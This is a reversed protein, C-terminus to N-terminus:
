GIAIGFSSGAGVSIPTGATNTATNIPTVTGFTDTGSVVYAAAGNPTIAIGFPQNPIPIAPKAINTVLNVPIVTNGDIGSDNTVYATSGNPTIAIRNLGVTAGLPIPTGATDTVLNIPIVASDGEGVVYATAGNPAIAIADASAGVPIPTGATNTATNIPTVSNDGEIVVYATAGNPAMAIDTPTTGVPIPTGATNTATNIPTVTNDGGETVYATTGDPTIAIGAIGEPHTGVTIPTAATNTVLNIPTVSPGIFDTVYASEGNPTIAMAFPNLVGTIPTGATNTATDIPTVTDAGENTVYATIPRLTISSTSPAFTVSSISPGSGVLCTSLAASSVSNLQANLVSLGDFSEAASGSASIANAPAIEHLQVKGLTTRSVKIGNNWTITSKISAADIASVFTACGGAYKTRGIKVPKIKIAKTVVSTSATPVQGVPNSSGTCSSLALNTSVVENSVNPTGNGPTLPPDFSLSGGVKCTVNGSPTIVKASAPTTVTAALTLPLLCAVSALLLIRRNAM